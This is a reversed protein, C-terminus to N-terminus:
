DNGKLQQPVENAIRSGYVVQMLQDGPLCSGGHLCWKLLEADACWAAGTQEVQEEDIGSRMM